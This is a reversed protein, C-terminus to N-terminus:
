DLEDIRHHASKASQEVVAMREKLNNSKDQKVELRKIDHQIATIQASTKGSWRGVLAVNVGITLAFGVVAIVTSVEM